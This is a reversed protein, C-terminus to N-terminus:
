EPRQDRTEPSERPMGGKSNDILGVINGDPDNITVLRGPPIDFPEENFAFGAAVREAYAADVDEVEFWVGTGGRGTGPAAQGLILYAGGDLPFWPAEYPQPETQLFRAYWRSAAEVDSVWQFVTEIRRVRM